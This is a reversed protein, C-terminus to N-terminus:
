KIVFTGAKEKRWSYGRGSLDTCLTTPKNSSTIDVISKQKIYSYYRPPIRQFGLVFDIINNIEWIWFTSKTAQYPIESKIFFIHWQLKTPLRYQSLRHFKDKTLISNFINKMRKQGRKFSEQFFNRAQKLTM